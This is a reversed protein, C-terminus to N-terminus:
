WHRSYNSMYAMLATSWTCLFEFLQIISIKKESFHNAKECLGAFDLFALEAETRVQDTFVLKLIGILDPM